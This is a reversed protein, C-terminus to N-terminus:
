AMRICSVLLNDEAIGPKGRDESSRKNVPNQRIRKGMPRYRGEAINGMEWKQIVAPHFEGWHFLPIM